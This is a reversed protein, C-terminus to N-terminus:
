KRLFPNDRSSSDSKLFRLFSFGSKHSGPTISNAFFMGWIISVLAVVLVLFKLTNWLWDLELPRDPINVTNMILDAEASHNAFDMEKCSYTLSYFKNGGPILFQKVRINNTRWVYVGEILISRLGNIWYEEVLFVRFRSGTRSSYIREIEKEVFSLNEENILMGGGDHVALQVNPVLNQMEGIKLLIVGSKRLDAGMPVLNPNPMNLVFQAAESGSTVLWGQPVKLSVGTEPDVFLDEDAGVFLSSLLLLLLAFRFVKKPDIVKIM